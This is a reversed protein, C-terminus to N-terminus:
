LRQGELEAARVCNIKLKLLGQSPWSTALLALRLPRGSTTGRAHQSLRHPAPREHHRGRAPRPPACKPRSLVYENDQSDIIRDVEQEVPAERRQRERARARGARAAKPPPAPPPSMHIQPALACTLVAEL